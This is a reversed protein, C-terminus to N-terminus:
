VTLIVREINEVAFFTPQEAKKDLWAVILAELEKYDKASLDGLYDESFEKGSDYAVCQIDEIISRANVFHNHTYHKKTGKFVSVSTGERNEDSLIDMICDLDEYTEDDLSYAYEEM